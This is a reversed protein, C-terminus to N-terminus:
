TRCRRRLAIAILCILVVVPFVVATAVAFYVRADQDMKTIITGAETGSAVSADTGSLYAVCNLFFDRNANARASLQSNVAFGADGIAVIRTPRISLDNGASAGREIVAAVVANGVLALSTFEIRDAGAGSEAAASPMFGVPHEFLIRSGDLPKTIPHESFNGVVVDVGSVTKTGTPAITTARLGWGPLISAVGGTDAMSSLVLMRGGARLYNDIRALESRSFDDKAGAVVILACDPPIATENVLDIVNNRYGDRSLDRAIDSMGWNGYESFSTEGHGTTWYINRRQPPMTLSLITSACIREGFGDALDVIAIRRGREFVVSNEVAGQRVLREAQGIDWKPDVYRIDVKAGGHSASTARLSRLLHGIERFRKDRRSMFCTITIEGHSEELISQTRASCRRETGGVPIDLDVDLRFALCVALIAASLSLLVAFATSIRLSATGRGALRMSAITKSTFFLFFSAILLYSVFVGTSVLGSSIDLIHADLPMEGFAIRDQPAWALLAYWVGRPIGVLLLISACAATAAHRFLASMSVSVACWLVGQLMLALFSSCFGSLGTESLVDPAFVQVAIITALLSLVMATTLAIFVGLFKGFALDREKVPSALLIDILGTQREDSFSDMALIAALVPLFPSISVAWITAVSIRQGEALDLNFAFFAASAALFGAVAFASSYVSRL